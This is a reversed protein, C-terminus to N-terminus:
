AVALQQVLSKHVFGVRGGRDVALWAGHEGFVDLRTPMFLLELVAGAFSPQARLRVGEGAIVGHRTVSEVYTDNIGDGDTDLNPEPAGGVAAPVAHGALGLTTLVDIEAAAGGTLGDVTTGAPTVVHRTTKANELLFAHCGAEDRGGTVGWLALKMQARTPAGASALPLLAATSPALWGTSLHPGADTTTGFSDLETFFDAGRGPDNIMWVEDIALQGGPGAFAHLPTFVSSEEAPSLNNNAGGTFNPNQNKPDALEGLGGAVSNALRNMLNVNDSDAAVMDYLDHVVRDTWGGIAQARRLGVRHLCEAKDRAWVVVVARMCGEPEQGHEIYDPLNTSAATPDSPIQQHVVGTGKGAADVEMYTGAPVSAINGEVVRGPALQRLRSALSPNKALSGLIAKRAEAPDKPLNAAVEDAQTLCANLVIRADPGTDMHGILGRLFKETRARNHALDLGQAASVEGTPSPVGALDMAQPAGHGALMVQQIRHNQGQRDAITAAASGAAELTEPGEVMVTLNRPHVVLDTLASDRHFAGNWDSGTHLILLLPKARDEITENAALKNLLKAEFRHYNHVRAPNGIFTEPRKGDTEVMDLYSRADAGNDAELYAHSASFYNALNGVEPLGKAMLRKFQDKGEQQKGLAHHLTARPIGGELTLLAIGATLADVLVPTSSFGATETSQVGRAYARLTDRDDTALGNSELDHVKMPECAGLPAPQGSRVFELVKVLPDKRPGLAPDTAWDPRSDAYSDLDGVTMTDFDAVPRFPTTAPGARAVDPGHDRQVSMARAIASNGVLCQLTLLRQAPTGENIDPHATVPPHRRPAAARRTATAFAAEM